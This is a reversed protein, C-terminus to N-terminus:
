YRNRVRRRTWKGAKVCAEIAKQTFADLSRRADPSLNSM